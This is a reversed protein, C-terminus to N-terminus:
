TIRRKFINKIINLGFVFLIIFCLCLISNGFIDWFSDNNFFIRTSTLYFDSMGGYNHFMPFSLCEANNYYNYLTDPTSWIFSSRDLTGDVFFVSNITDGIIEETVTPPNTSFDALFCPVNGGTYLMQVSYRLYFKYDPYDESNVFIAKYTGNSSFIISKYSNWYIPISVYKNLIDNSVEFKYDNRITGDQSYINNYLTAGFCTSFTSFLIFFILFTIFLIKKTLM